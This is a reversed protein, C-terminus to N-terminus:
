GSATGVEVVLSVVELVEGEARVGLLEVVEMAEEVEVVSWAVELVVKLAAWVEVVSSAVSERYPRSHTHTTASASAFAEFPM